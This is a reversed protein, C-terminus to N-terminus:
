SHFALNLADVGGPHLVKGDLDIQRLYPEKRKNPSYVGCDIYFFRNTEVDVFAYSRFPGGAWKKKNEWLGQM